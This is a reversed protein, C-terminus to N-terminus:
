AARAAYLAAEAAFESVKRRMADLMLDSDIGAFIFPAMGEGLLQAHEKGHGMGGVIAVKNHRRAARLVTKCADIVLPHTAQGVVGLDASLDNAGISVIDVGAVAAIADACAVGRATEILVQLVIGADVQANMDRPHLKQYGVQPLTALQSRQGHPAFRVAMAADLAQEVTEIRPVIIGTAGGDLVRGIAGYDREPVRVWAQLGLDLATASMAAIADLSIGSHEMDIWIVDYRAAKAMRVVEATRASRIGLGLVPVGSRLNKMIDTRLM